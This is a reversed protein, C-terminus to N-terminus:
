GGPPMPLAVTVSGATILIAGDVLALGDPSAGLPIRLTRQLRLSEADMLHLAYLPQPGPIGVTQVEITVFHSEAPRAPILGDDVALGDMSQVAGSEELLLVGSTTTVAIRRGFRWVAAPPRWMLKDRDAVPEPAFEGSAVDGIWLQGEGYVLLRDGIVWAAEAGFLLDFSTWILSGATTGYARVDSAAGVILRGGPAIRLWNVREDMAIRGNLRGSQADYILIEPSDLRLDGNIDPSDTYGVVALVGEGLSADLVTRLPSTASWLLSGDTASFVALRGAREVLCLRSVDADAILDILEIINRGRGREGPRPIQLRRPRGAEDFLRDRVPSEFLEGFPRTEWRTQGTVADIREVTASGPAPWFLDVTEADYGLLAPQLSDRFRRTWRQQVVGAGAGPAGVGASFLGVETRSESVMMVHEPAGAEGTAPMLAWNPLAQAPGAIERGIRPLRVGARLQEAIDSAVQAANLPQGRSSLAGGPYRASFRDLIQAASVYRQERLLATILRGAIAGIDDPTVTPSGTDHILEAISLAELLHSTEAGSQGQDSARDALTLLADVSAGSAPYRAALSELAAAEAGPGLAAREARAVADFAEYASYGQDLLLARIRRTAEVDGRTATDLSEPLAAALAADALISQHYIELAEAYRGQTQRLRGMALAYALRQPATEACRGLRVIIQELLDPAIPAPTWGTEPGPARSQARTVVELLLDFLRQRHESAPERPLEAARRLAEDAAEPIRAPRGGRYALRVANILPTPDDPREAIRRALAQDAADWTMYSHVALGDLAILQRGLPLLAGPATLDLREIRQQPNAPDVIVAGSRAPLLIRDGIVVARGYVGQEGEATLAPGLRPPGAPFQAPDFFIARERGIAAIQDGVALLYKPGGLLRDELAGLLRGSHRDIKLVEGTSQAVLFLADGVVVPGSAEWPLDTQGSRLIEPWPIKRVWVPRGTAAEFAGLVGLADAWYVVGRHGAGAGPAFSAGRMTLRAASGVSRTWVIRGDALDLGALYFTTLRGAQSAKLLSVVAVGSEVVVQGTTTALTMGPIDRQLLTSWVAAGDALRLAHVSPDGDRDGRNNAVGTVALVLDEHITVSVPDHVIYDSKDSLRTNRLISEPEYVGVWPQPTPRFRWLERLTVRDRAHISLGDNIIIVDETAAPFLWRGLGALRQQEVQSVNRSAADLPESWLPATDFASTQLPPAIGWPSTGRRGARSPWRAPEPPAGGPAGAEALWRGATEILDPEPIYRTIEGLLEAAAVGLAPDQRDPHRELQLLARAASHFQGSELRWQALRLAAEYGASTLLSSREVGAFDGARLQAEAGPGIRQRYAELLDPAGLLADHIRQRVSFFLLEDDTAPLLRDPEEVLEAQLARVAEGLNGAAVLDPLTDLTSQAAPSDDVYVPNETQAGLPLAPALAALAITVALQLQRM